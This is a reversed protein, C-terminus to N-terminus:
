DNTRRNIKKYAKEKIIEQVSRKEINSELWSIIDFYLFARKEFKNSELGQMQEKLLVFQKKLGRETSDSLLHKLFELIHLQYKSLAGKKTFYRYTSRISSEVLDNNQLEFHCVLLLIRTFSHIDERVDMEKENIIKNLWKIGTKYNGSGIFLCAIKYYFLLVSHKDLKPIFKNLESELKAVIRTGSKFEGLMFHRNMEHVYIAKFLNLNINETLTLQKNRKLAILKKQTEVFGSYNYLKNQVVLLSNLAKIYVELENEIMIPNKEFLEVWKEAYENGKKLDQIFFYYGVYSSYLHMKEHFSLLQEKFLPLSNQFYRRVKEQDTKNKIFGSQLYYSNLKLSLNSFININKISEAVHEVEKIISNVRIDNNASLTKAIILKELELIKLLTLSRDNETAMKKAKELMKAAEKYLCKSYLIRAYDLLEMLQIEKLKGTNCMKLCKLLQTYLHAKLNSLQQASLEPNLKLIREEDHKKQQDIADFLRVFKKVDKTKLRSAHLKFFRKESKTMAKILQFLTDSKVKSM